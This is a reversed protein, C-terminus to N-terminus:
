NTETYRKVEVGNSYTTITFSSAGMGSYALTYRANDLATQKSGAITDSVLLKGWKDFLEVLHTITNTNMTQGKM